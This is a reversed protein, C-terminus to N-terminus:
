LFPGEVQTVFAPITAARSPRPASAEIEDIPVLYLITISTPLITLTGLRCMDHVFNYVSSVHLSKSMSPSCPRLTTSQAIRQLETPLNDGANGRRAMCFWEQLMMGLVQWLIWQYRCKHSCGGCAHSNENCVGRLRDEPKSNIYSMDSKLAITYAVYAEWSAWGTGRQKFKVFRM